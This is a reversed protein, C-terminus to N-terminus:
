VTNYRRLLARALGPAGAAGYLLALNHAAERAMGGERPEGEGGADADAAELCAEYLPAALHALGLHHLARGANFAAEGPAGRLAAYRELLAFAALVAASRQAAARSTAHQLLAAGLSLCVLPQRPAAAFARFLPPLAAAGWGAAASGGPGCAAAAAGMLACPVSGPHRSGLRSLLRAQRATAGAAAAARSFANWQATSGGPAAAASLIGRLAEAAGAADGRAEAVDSALQRLAALRDRGPARGLSLAAEILQSADDLRAAGILAACVSRFLAFREPDSLLFRVAPPETPAPPLPATATPAAAGGGAADGGGAPKRPRKKPKPQGLGCFVGDAPPAAAPPKARRGGRRGRGAAAQAAAWDVAAREAGLSQRVLPLAVALFAAADGAAGRLRAARLRRMTAADDDAEAPREAEGGGGRAGPAAVLAELPALQALADQTRGLALLLEARASAADPQGPHAQLVDQYFAAAGEADDLEAYCTAVRAWLPPADYEPLQRLPLLFRLARRADGVAWFANAAALFLDSFEAVGASALAGLAAEARAADGLYAHCIAGKVSLDLPLAVAPAADGPDAGGASPDGAFLPAARELLALVDAYRGLDLLLEALVNVTTGDATAPHAEIFAALLAAAREPAGLAHHLRAAARAVDADDPRAHRLAEVGELAKRHEGLEAYLMARDWRAHPCGPEARLGRSLCYVAARADGAAAARAALRRWGDADRPSLHAGIMACDLARRADGRAEHLQALLAYADPQTPALRVVEALLAAAAGYDGSAYCLTAEGLKRAVDEPVAAGTRARKKRRRAAARASRRRGRADGLLAGLEDAASQARARRRGGGAAAADRKRQALAEYTGGGGGGAGDGDEEEEEESSSASGSGGRWAQAAALAASRRAAVEAADQPEAGDDDDDDDDDGDGAGDGADDDSSGSGSDSGSGGGAAEESEDDDDGSTAGRLVQRRRRTLPAFTRARPHAPLMALLQM